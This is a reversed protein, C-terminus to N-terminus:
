NKELVKMVNYSFMCGSRVGGGQIGTVGEEDEGVGM